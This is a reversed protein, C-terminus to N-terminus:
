LRRAVVSFVHGHKYGGCALALPGRSEQLSIFAYSEFLQCLRERTVVMLAGAWEDSPGFFHGCFVGNPELAATLRQWLSDFALPQCFPLSLSANILQCKPVQLVEMRAEVIQLREAISALMGQRLQKLADAHPEVAVVNWGANLLVATDRGSGAGIDVAVADAIFNNPLSLALELTAHPSGSRMTEHYGYWSPKLLLSDNESQKVSEAGVLVQMRHFTKLLQITAALESPKANKGCVAGMLQLYSKKREVALSLLEFGVESVSIMNPQWSTRVPYMVVHSKNGPASLDFAVAEGNTMQTYLQLVPFDYARLELGPVPLPRNNSLFDFSDLECDVAPAISQSQVAQLRHRTREFEALESVFLQSVEGKEVLTKLFGPFADGMSVIDRERPPYLKFYTALIDKLENNLLSCVQPFVSLMISVRTQDRLWAYVTMGSVSIGTWEASLAGDDPTNLVESIERAPDIGDRSRLFFREYRQLDVECQDVTARPLEGSGAGSSEGTNLKSCDPKSLEVVIACTSNSKVSSGFDALSETTGPSQLMQTLHRVRKLEHLLEEFQPFNQDREIMVANVATFSSVYSLLQFVREDIASGHNDIARNGHRSHGALHIQVVRDLPFLKLQELADFNHNISNVVHNNLDLLLGCDAYEAVEWVFEAESLRGPPHDIYYPINEIILPRGVIDTAKLIRDAVHRAAQRTFPLPFLDYGHHDDVSSFSLHDSVWPIKFHEAFWKLQRLFDIDLADVSGLSLSVSHSVLPFSDAFGELWAISRVDSLYNEPTIELFGIDAQHQLIAQSLQSRLGLGPRFSPLGDKLRACNRAGEDSVSM